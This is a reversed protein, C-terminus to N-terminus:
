SNPVQLESVQLFASLLAFIKSDFTKCHKM